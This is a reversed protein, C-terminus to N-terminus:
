EANSRAALEGAAARGGGMAEEKEARGAKALAGLRPAPLGEPIVRGGGGGGGSAAEGPRLGTRGASAGGGDAPEGLRLGARPISGGGGGWNLKSSAFASSASSLALPM